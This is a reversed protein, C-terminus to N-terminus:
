SLVERRLERLPADAYDCRCGAGRSTQVDLYKSTRSSRSEDLHAVLPGLRFTQVDPRRSTQVDLRESCFPKKFFPRNVKQAFPGLTRGTASLDLASLRQSAQPTYCAGVLCRVRVVRGLLFMACTGDLFSDASPKLTVKLTCSM